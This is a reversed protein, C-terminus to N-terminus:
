NNIGVIPAVLAEYEKFTNHMKKMEKELGTMQAEADSAMHEEAPSAMYKMMEAAMKKMHEKAEDHRGEDMLQKMTAYAAEMNMDGGPNQDHPAAPVQGLQGTQEEMALRKVQEPQSSRMQKLMPMNELSENLLAEKSLRDVDKALEAQSRARFTGLQGVPIVNERTEYGKFFAESADDSMKAIEEVKLKKIEAPTIKATARLKSLRIVISSKRAALRVIEEDAKLQASLKTIKEKTATMEAKKKEEDKDAAMKQEAEEAAMKKDDEDQEAAMKSLEEDKAEALKKEADEESMKMKEKLHKKAKTYKAMKEKMTAYDMDDDGKSAKIKTLRAQQEPMMKSLEYEGPHDAIEKNIKSKIYIVCDQESKFGEKEDYWGSGSDWQMGTAFTGDDHKEIYYVFNRYEVEKSSLVKALRSRLLSANAAAPFPTITLESIKHNTLDAGISVHTYRGDLAKEVNEKGLFKVKGYLGLKKEGDDPDEYEKAEVPGVLRGVTHTASQSHDLQLPPSYKAAVEKGGALRSLKSLLSNHNAALKNIDEEKIEVDGDMSKFKGSYVLLVDRVLSSPMEGNPQEGAMLLGANLRKIM